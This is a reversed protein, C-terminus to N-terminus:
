CFSVDRYLSFALGHCKQAFNILKEYSSGKAEQQIQMAYRHITNYVASMKDIEDERRIEELSKKLPQWDESILIEERLLKEKLVDLQAKIKTCTEPYKNLRQTCANVPVVPKPQVSKVRRGTLHHLEKPMVIVSYHSRTHTRTHKHSIREMRYQTPVPQEPEELLTKEVEVVDDHKPCFSESFPCWTGSFLSTRFSDM